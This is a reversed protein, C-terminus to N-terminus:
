ADPYALRCLMELADPTRIGPNLLFLDSPLFYVRDTQVAKLHAWAPNSRMSQDLKQNIADARGMTVIFLIDPDDASLQELSYPVTKNAFSMDRHSTIVNDMGLYEAMSACIATPTEATVDKGTARLIAIRAPEQSAALARAAKMRREYEACVRAAQDETGCLAGLFQLLPINDHIGDYNVLLYPIQNSQFLPELKGNQTQGGLVFDPSLSVLKEMDIHQPTGLETVDRAADPIPTETIPRAIATGGVAYVMNLLPTTLVAIRQPRASVTFTQDKYTLTTGETSAAPAGCGVIAVCLALSALFALPSKM